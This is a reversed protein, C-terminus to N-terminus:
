FPQNAQARLAAFVVALPLHEPLVYVTSRQRGLTPAVVEDFFAGSVVICGLSIRNDHPSTSALRQARRQQPQAPRLRHIALRADYDIWVIAEGTLNRGPEAEFRGAPTIRAAPPLLGPEIRGVDPLGVDGPALGLLASAEGLLRGDAAHVQLRAAKKDVIVFPRGQHDNSALVWHLM